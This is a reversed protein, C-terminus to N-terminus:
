HRPDVLTWAGDFSTAMWFGHTTRPVAYFIAGGASASWDFGTRPPKEGKPPTVAAFGHGGNSSHMLSDDGDPAPVGATERPGGASAVLHDSDAAALWVDGLRPLILAGRSVTQWTKGADDSTVITYAMDSSGSRRPNCLAFLKLRTTDNTAPTVSQLPAGECASPSKLRTLKADDLRMPAIPKGADAAALQVIVTGSQVAVSGARISSNPTMEVDSRTVRTAAPTFRSVYVPGNCVGQACNDASLLVAHGQNMEVDLVMDGPHPMKTFSAGSDRTVWLDGGFVYGTSPTAFRTQTVARQPQIRAVDTTGTAASVDTGSFTHVAAWSKGNTGSKLLVPCTDGNCDQSGLAYLTSQGANTVSWTRFSDPVKTPRQQPSVSTPSSTPGDPAVEDTAGAIVKGRRVGDDMGNQQWLFIAFVAIVAVAASSLVALRNRRRSTRRADHVIRQWDVDSAAEERVEARAASFFDAVPDHEASPEDNM